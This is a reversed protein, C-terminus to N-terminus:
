IRLDSTGHGYERNPPCREPSLLDFQDRYLGNLFIYETDSTTTLITRIEEITFINCLSM